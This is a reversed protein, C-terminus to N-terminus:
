REVNLFGYDQFIALAPASVLFDVFAQAANVQQSAKVVAILYIIDTHSNAPATTIMQVHRSIRADTAYVLGADVNGTEVYALVHRVNKGFVLKAQLSDFLNLFKLTEKAYHGAPVSEPEGMAIKNAISLDQFSTINNDGKPVILVMSNQILVQRSNSLLLGTKGLRDVWQPSASLFLDVPAGQVIQQALSGSSGFNYIIEVAPMIAQYATRLQELVDQMSAAASVTLRVAADHTAHGM